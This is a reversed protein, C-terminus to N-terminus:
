VVAVIKCDGLDKYSMYQGSSSDALLLGERFHPEAAGETNVHSSRTQKEAVHKSFSDAAARSRQNHDGHNGVVHKKPSRDRPRVRVKENAYTQNDARETAMTVSQPSTGIPQKHKASILSSKPCSRPSDERAPLVTQRSSSSWSCGRADGVDTSRWRPSAAGGAPCPQRDTSVDSLHRLNQVYMVGDGPPISRAPTLQLGRPSNFGSDQLYESADCVAGGLSRAPYKHGHPTALGVVNVGSDRSMGHSKQPLYSCYEASADGANELASGSYMERYKQFVRLRHGDREAMHETEPCGNNLLMTPSNPQIVADNLNQRVSTDQCDHCCEEEERALRRSRRRTHRKQNVKLGEMGEIVPSTAAVHNNQMSAKTRREDAPTICHDRRGSRQTHKLETNRQDCPSVVVIDQHCSSSMHKADINWNELDVGQKSLRSTQTAHCDMQHHSGVGDRQTSKVDSRASRKHSVAGRLDRQTSMAFASGAINQMDGGIVNRRRSETLVDPDTNQKGNSGGDKLDRKNCKQNSEMSRRGHSKTVSHDRKTVNSVLRPDVVEGHQCSGQGRCHDSTWGRSREMADSQGMHMPSLQSYGYDDDEENVESQTAADQRWTAAGHRRLQMGQIQLALDPPPFQASFTAHEVEPKAGPRRDGVSQSRKKSSGRGFLKSLLSTKEGPVPAFLCDIVM